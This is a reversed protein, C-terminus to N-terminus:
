RRGSLDILQGGATQRGDYILVARNPDDVTDATFDEDPTFNGGYREGM